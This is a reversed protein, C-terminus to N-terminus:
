AGHIEDALRKWCDFEQNKTCCMAAVPGEFNFGPLRALRDVLAKEGTAGQPVVCTHDVGILVWFVDPVMPGKDTTRIVVSKLEAFTVTSTDGGPTTCTVVRDDVAVRYSSEPQM